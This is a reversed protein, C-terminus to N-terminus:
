PLVPRGGHLHPCPGADPEGFAQPLPPLVLVGVLAAAAAGSACALLLARFAPRPNRRGDGPATESPIGYPPGSPRDAPPHHPSPASPNRHDNARPPLASPATDPLARM